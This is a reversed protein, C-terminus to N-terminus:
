SYINREMKHQNFRIYNLINIKNEVRIKTTPNAGEVKDFEELEFATVHVSTIM